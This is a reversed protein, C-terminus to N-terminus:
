RRDPSTKEQKTGLYWLPGHVTKMRKLIRALKDANHKNGSLRLYSLMLGLCSSVGFRCDGCVDGDARHQCRSFSISQAIEAPAKSGITREIHDAACPACCMMGDIHAQAQNRNGM